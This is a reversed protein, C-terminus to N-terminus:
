LSNSKLISAADEWRTYLMDRYWILFESFIAASSGSLPFINNSQKLMHLNDLLPTQNPYSLALQTERCAGEQGSM